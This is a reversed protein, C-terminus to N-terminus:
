PKAQRNAQETDALLRSAQRVVLLRGDPDTMSPQIEATINWYKATETLENELHQGKPFIGVAGTTLLPHTWDLLQPLPALARATVVDTVSVFRDIVAEIRAVHVTVPSGTLRAVHRLFSCKRANSEVLHIHGHDTERLLIGLVLGPFGGGSGLDLWRLAGQALTYIQASDEIHRAWVTDLTTSSVLNMAKQWRVLEEALLDLRETTERSVGLRKLVAERSTDATTRIFTM